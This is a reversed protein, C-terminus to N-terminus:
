LEHNSRRGKARLWHALQHCCVQRTNVVHGVGRREQLNLIADAGSEGLLDIQKLAVQM